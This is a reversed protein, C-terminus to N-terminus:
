QARVDAPAPAEVIFETRAQFTHLPCSYRRGDAEFEATYPHVGGEAGLSKSFGVHCNRAIVGERLKVWERSTSDWADFASIIASFRM